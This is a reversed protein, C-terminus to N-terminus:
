AKPPLPFLGIFREALDRDGEIALAGQAELVSLPAGGYGAAAVATARGIGRRRLIEAEHIPAAELVQVPV